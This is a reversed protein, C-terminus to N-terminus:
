PGTGQIGPGTMPVFRVPIAKSQEYGSETRTIVLLEQYADGVPIVMRGGIKLQDLLPQPIRPPAATVIISDFPAKDPWGQYGDGARVHVNAFDLAELAREAQRALPEVIEISYVEAVIKALVAAQYGSGTGIELVRHDARPAALETMLAVIYPQSITQEHGIPLPHDAYAHSRMSPPVFLHRPVSRMANLVAPDKVGRAEIQRRVMAERDNRTPDEDSEAGGEHAGNFCGVPLWCVLATLLLQKNYIM